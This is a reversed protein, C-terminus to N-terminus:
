PWSEVRPRIDGEGLFDRVLVAARGQFTALDVGAHPLHLGGEGALEAAIKEAWDEGTNPRPYKLLYREDTERRKCWFKEKSGMQETDEIDVVFASKAEGSLRVDVVTFREV